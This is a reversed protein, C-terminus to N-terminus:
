DLLYGVFDAAMEAHPANIIFGMVLPKEDEKYAGKLKESQSMDILIPVEEGEESELYIFYSEYKEIDEESLILRLDAFFNKEYALEELVARSAIVFDVTGSEHYITLAQGTSSNDSGLLSDDDATYTLDTVFYLEQKKTDIEKEEIFDEVLENNVYEEEYCNLYIGTLLTEKKNKVTVGVGIIVLIIGVVFLIQVWYYNWIYQIKKDLPANKISEREKKFEDKVAM